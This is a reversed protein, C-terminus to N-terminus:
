APNALVAPDPILRNPIGVLLVIFSSFTFRRMPTTGMCVALDLVSLLHDQDLSM